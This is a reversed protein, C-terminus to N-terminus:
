VQVGYEKLVLKLIIRGNVSAERLHYRVYHSEVYM